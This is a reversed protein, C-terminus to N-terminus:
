LSFIYRMAALSIAKLSDWSLDLILHIILFYANM